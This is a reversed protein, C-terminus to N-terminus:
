GAGGAKRIKDMQRSLWNQKKPNESVLKQGKMGTAGVIYIGSVQAKIQKKVPITDFIREDCVMNLIQPGVKAKVIPVKSRRLMKPTADIVQQPLGAEKMKMKKKDIVLMTVTQKTQQVAEDQQEQRKQLITGLFYLVAIVATVIALVLFVGRHFVAFLVILAAVVAAIVGIAVKNGTTLDKM